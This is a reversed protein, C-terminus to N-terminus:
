RRSSLVTFTRAPIVTMRLSLGSVTLCSRIITLFAISSCVSTASATVKRRAAMAPIKMLMSLRIYIGINYEKSM